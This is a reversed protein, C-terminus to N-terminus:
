KDGFQFTASKYMKEIMNSFDSLYTLQQKQTMTTCADTNIKVINVENNFHNRLLQEMEFPNKTMLPNKIDYIGLTLCWYIVVTPYQFNFDCESILTANQLVDNM